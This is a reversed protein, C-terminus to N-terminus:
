SKPERSSSEPFRGSIYDYLGESFDCYVEVFGKKIPGLKLYAYSQIRLNNVNEAPTKHWIHLDPM